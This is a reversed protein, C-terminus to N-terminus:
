LNGALSDDILSADITDTIPDYFTYAGSDLVAGSLFTMGTGTFHFASDYSVEHTDVNARFGTLIRALAAVDDETYNRTNGNEVSEGPRYEGM